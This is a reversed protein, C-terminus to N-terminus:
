ELVYWATARRPPHVPVNRYAQTIDIKALMSGRGVTM